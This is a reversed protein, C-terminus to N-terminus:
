AARLEAIIADVLEGFLEWAKADDAWWLLTQEGITGLLPHARDRRLDGLLTITKDLEGGSKRALRKASASAMAPIRSAFDNGVQLEDGLYHCGFEDLIIEQPTVSPEGGAESNPRGVLPALEDGAVLLRYSVTMRASRDM